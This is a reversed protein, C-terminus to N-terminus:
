NMRSHPPFWVCRRRGFASPWARWSSVGRPRPSRIISIRQSSSALVVYVAYDSTGPRGAAAQFPVLERLLELFRNDVSSEVRLDVGRNLHSHTKEEVTPLGLLSPEGPM